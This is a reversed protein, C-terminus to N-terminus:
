TEIIRSQTHADNFAVIIDFYFCKDYNIEESLCPTISDDVSFGNELVIIMRLLRINLM